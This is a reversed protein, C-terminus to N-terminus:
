MLDAAWGKRWGEREARFDWKLKVVVLCLFCGWLFRLACEMRKGLAM